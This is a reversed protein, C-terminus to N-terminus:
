EFSVTGTINRIYTATVGDGPKLADLISADKVPLTITEKGGRITVLSAARDIAEVKGFVKRRTTLIGAPKDGPEVEGTSEEYSGMAGADRGKEIEVQAFNTEMISVKDGIEIADVRTVQPPIKLVEFTGEPTKITMLRTEANVSAVTGTLEKTTASVSVPKQSTEAGVVPFVGITGLSLGLALASPLSRKLM